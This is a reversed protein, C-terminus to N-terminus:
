KSFMYLARRQQKEPRKHTCVSCVSQFQSSLASSSCRERASFLSPPWREKKQLEKSPFCCILTLWDRRRTNITFLAGDVRLCLFDRFSGWKQCNIAGRPSLKQTHSRGRADLCQASLLAWLNALSQTFSNGRLILLPREYIEDGGRWLCSSKVNACIVKRRPTFHM